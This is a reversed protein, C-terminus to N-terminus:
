GGEGTEENLVQQIVNRRYKSVVIDAGGNRGVSGGGSGGAHDSCMPVYM